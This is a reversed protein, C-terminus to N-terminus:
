GGGGGRLKSLGQQRANILENVHECKNFPNMYFSECSCFFEVQDEGAIEIWGTINHYRSRSPWIFVPGRGILEPNAKKYRRWKEIIRRIKTKKKTVM